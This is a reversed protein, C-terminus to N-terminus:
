GGARGVRSLGSPTVSFIEVLNRGERLSAPPILMSFRTKDRVPYTRGVAVIRGNVGVALPRAPAARGRFYGTVYVPVVGSDADVHAFADGGNVRLQAPGYSVPLSGVRRGLLERNPGIRFVSRLGRPFSRRQRALEEDRTRVFEDFRITVPEGSRGHRVQLRRERRASRNRKSLAVGDFRPWGRAGLAAAITPMIDITRAPADDIRSTRQRPLKVFLPVGAISAFDGRKIQRRSGGPRLGVGHDATVVVLARDWLGHAKLRAVLRGLLSDAYGVQLLHRQTAQEVLFRDRTWVRDVSGPLTPGAVPYQRGSPLLRWPVHPVVFHAVHAPPSRDPGRVRRVFREADRLRDAFLDDGAIRRQSRRDRGRERSARVPAEVGAEQGGFDEFDRDIPPLGDTLGRPLLLHGEVVALDSLLASLRRAVSVNPRQDECTGCVRTIPELVHLAHHGGLLTFINSPYRRATPLNSTPRRGAFISPVALQTGDAVTTANRYWTSTRALRGFGPFSAGDIRGRANMLSTTPLEDFIALVVPTRSHLSSRRAEASAVTLLEHVPSFALFAVLFVAPAPSLATLFSRTTAVRAYAVAGAAGLATAGVLLPVTASLVRELLDLAFVALLLGVLAVQLAEGLPRRIREALAVVLSLVLPPILTLGFAVLLIDTLTNGRVVFFEAHRGLEDFLPAVVAFAWLVCLHLARVAIVRAGVAM